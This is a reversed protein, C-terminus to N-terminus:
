YGPWESTLPTFPRAMLSFLVKKSGKKWRELIEVAMLELPTPPNPRFPGAMLFLVKKAGERINVIDFSM